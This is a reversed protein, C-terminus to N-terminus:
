MLALKMQFLSKINDALKLSAIQIEKKYLILGM